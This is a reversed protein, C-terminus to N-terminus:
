LAILLTVCFNTQGMDLTSSMKEFIFGRFVQDAHQTGDCVGPHVWIVLVAKVDGKPFYSYRFTGKPNAGAGAYKWSNIFLTIFSKGKAIAQKSSM